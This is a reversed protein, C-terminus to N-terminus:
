DDGPLEGVVLIVAISTLLEPFLEVPIRVYGTVGGAKREPLTPIGSM